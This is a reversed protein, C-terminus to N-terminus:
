LAVEAVRAATLSAMCRHDIPCHRLECPSCEVADYLVRVHGGRPSTRAPNTPGFVITTPTGLAAAVHALGSDNSVAGRARALIRAAELLTTRGVKDEVDPVARAIMSSVRRDAKGGLLVVTLGKELARRALEIWNPIPWRKATGRAAGPSLALLNGRPASALGLRAAVGDKPIVGAELALARAAFRAIHLYEDIQHKPGEEVLRDTLLVGRGGRATGLRRGVRAAAAALATSFSHTLLVVADPRLSRYLRGDAGRPTPHVELRDGFHADLLDRFAPPALLHVRGPFARLLGELAPLAMVVDGLWNPLRIALRVRGPM